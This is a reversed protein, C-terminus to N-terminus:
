GKENKSCYSRVEESLLLILGLPITLIGIVIRAWNKRKLLQTYLGFFIVGFVTWVILGAPNAYPAPAIAEFVGSILQISLIIAFIAIHIKIALPIEQKTEQQDDEPYSKEGTKTIIKEEALKTEVWWEPPHVEAIYKTARGELDPKRLALGKIEGSFTKDVIWEASCNKCILVKFIFGIKVEFESEFGCIPCRNWKESVERLYQEDAPM